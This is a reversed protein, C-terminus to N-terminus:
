ANAKRVEVLTRYFYMLFKPRKWTFKPFASLGNEDRKKIGGMIVESARNFTEPRQRIGMLVM